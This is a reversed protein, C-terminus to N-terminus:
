NLRQHYNGAQSTTHRLPPSVRNSTVEYVSGQSNDKAAFKRLDDLSPCSFMSQFRSPYNRFEPDGRRVLELLADAHALRTPGLGKPKLVYCLKPSQAPLTPRTQLYRASLPQRLFSPDPTFSPNQFPRYDPRQLQIVTGPGQTYTNRRDITYLTTTNM